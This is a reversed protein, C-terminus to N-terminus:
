EEEGLILKVTELRNPSAKSIIFKHPGLQLEENVHPIRGLHNIIYGAITEFHDSENSLRIEPYQMELDELEVSGSIVFVGPAVKKVIEENIDYEDEIEGVVEEILDEITVMGATGGYEDIVIAVSINSNRFETLLDKSKKSLPVLKVPRIIEALTRPNHFLDHAFVVGIIDDMTEQYVPLKSYGSSIFLAQLEEITAKKEVMTMETRPIMSERVRKTSLDLVNQLLETEEQDFEENGGGNALERLIMEMEQRRYVGGTRDREAGMWGAVVGSFRDALSIVPRLLLSLWRMPVAIWRIIRDAQSRFLARPLLEGFLLLMLAALVIQLLLLIGPTTTDGTMALWVGQLPEDLYLVVLLAFVVTALTHGALTTAFYLDPKETFWALSRSAWTGKRTEIELKLRSAFVFAVEAGAFLGCLALAFLIFLTETM